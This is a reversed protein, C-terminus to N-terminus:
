KGRLDPDFAESYDLVELHALKNRYRRLRQTVAELKNGLKHKQALYALQGIELDDLDNWSEDGISVPLTIRPKMAAAWERRRLEILPLFEAAQAEWLRSVLESRGKESDILLASHALDRGDFRLRGGSEWTAALEAPWIGANRAGILVSAPDFLDLDDCEALYEALALDWLALRAIVRGLVKANAPDLNMGRKLERVFLLVDLEGIVDQWPHIILGASREPMQELKVGSLVLAVLPRESKPVTRGASEYEAMFRRWDQWREDGGCEVIVVSGPALRCRLTAASRRTVGPDELELLCYLLDLPSLSVDDSLPGATEWGENGLRDLLRDPLGAVGTTPIPLVLNYGDRVHSVARELFYEPGPLRWWDM